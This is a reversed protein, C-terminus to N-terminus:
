IWGPKWIRTNNGWELNEDRKQYETNGINIRLLGQGSQAIDLELGWQNQMKAYYYSRCRLKLQVLFQYEWMLRDTAFFLSADAQSGDFHQLKILM